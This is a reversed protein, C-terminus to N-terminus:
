KPRATEMYLLQLDYRLHCSGFVACRNDTTTGTDEDLFACRGFPLAFGFLCYASAAVFRENKLFASIVM